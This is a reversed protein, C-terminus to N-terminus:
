LRRAYMRYEIVPTFGAREYQRRAAAHRENLGTGVAALEMGAQRMLGLVHEIQRTGIGRGRFGRAVGNYHIVGVRRAQSVGYSVFGVVEGNAETVWVHDLEAWLRGMVRPLLWRDWREDGVAGYLEELEWDSGIDWIDTVLAQLAPM